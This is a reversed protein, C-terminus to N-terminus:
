RTSFKYITTQKYTKGPNLRVSPFNPKNPSDPFGQAELCLGTRFKYQINNKGKITGDLFNGSYFQMGPQDTLVEMLRGSTSDYLTVATQVKGNFNDLVWNHDYGKGFKLQEFNENIRLGIKETKRFDMPTNEVKALEGTTILGNDVPTFNEANIALEHALITNEPNGTLNFYSHHTPNLITPKDTTGTYDIQLENKDNLTYVVQLTVTGPYGQEGDPSVYTLKLSQSSDTKAPEANWFVKNYGNIGGHLHNEGNNITLQYNNGDISFKGKGIRNGYRGVISGFYSKDNIYGELSDYGLVVDEFKGNRDPATLSVVTAGYNIISAEMGNKNKLTYSYVQEGTPLLVGFIKKEIMKQDENNTRGSILLLASLCAATISKDM